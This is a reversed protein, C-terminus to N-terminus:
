RPMEWSTQGTMSNVYYTKGSSPDVASQWGAPLSPPAPAGGGGPTEWSTEGTNANVYYTRGSAPDVAQSWGPPLGGALTPPGPPAKGGGGGGGGRGKCFCYLGVAIAIVVIIAIVVGAIIGGAGGDGGGEGTIVPNDVVTVGIVNQQILFENAATPTGFKERMSTELTGKAADDLVLIKVTVRATGEVTVQVSTQPVAAETAFAQQLALSKQQDMAEAVTFAISVSPPIVSGGLASGGPLEKGVESPVQAYDPLNGDETIAIDACGIYFGGDARAAWMWQLVCYSCTKGAPLTLLQSMEVTGDGADVANDKGPIGDDDQFCNGDGEVCGKLVQARTHTHHPTTHHPRRPRAPLPFRPRRGGAARRVNLEFSDTASYHLALRVGTDLRDVDHPITVKWKVLLTGGPSYAATPQKVTNALGGNPTGGCGENAIRRADGFPQLKVGQDAPDFGQGAGERAPPDSLVGHADVSAVLALLRLLTRM